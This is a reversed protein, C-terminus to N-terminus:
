VHTIALWNLPVTRRTLGLRMVMMVSQSNKTHRSIQQVQENTLSTGMSAIGTKVGAQYAAIVDMFGEFLIAGTDKNFLDKATNMNFLVDRKNFLGTEPSNLYKAQDSQHLIRGSFGIM